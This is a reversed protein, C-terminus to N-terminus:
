HRSQKANCTKVRAVKSLLDILREVATMDIRYYDYQIRPYTGNLNKAVAFRRCREM